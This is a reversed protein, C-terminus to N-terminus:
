KMIIKNNVKSEWWPNLVILTRAVLGICIKSVKRNPM